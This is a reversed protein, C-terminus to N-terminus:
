PNIHKWPFQFVPATLSLLSKGEIEKKKKKKLRSSLVSSLFHCLDPPLYNSFRLSRSSSKAKGYFFKLTM